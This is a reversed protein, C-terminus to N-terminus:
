CTPPSGFEETTYRWFKLSDSWHDLPLGAKRRLQCLFVHPDELSSWVSPLFTARRAHEQLLLGDRGPRLTDLLEEESAVQLPALGSLISIHVALRPAEEPTMPAFRPDEFAAAWANYAVDEVLPRRAELSGICGRLAEGLHLTVFTASMRRLAPPYDQASVPLAQREWLGHDISRRAIDLLAERQATTLTEPSDM